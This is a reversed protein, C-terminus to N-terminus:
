DNNVTNQNIVKLKLSEIFQKNKIIENEISQKSIQFASELKSNYIKEILENFTLEKDKDDISNLFNIIKEIESNEM